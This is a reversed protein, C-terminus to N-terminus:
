NNIIPESDQALLNYEAGVQKWLDDFLEHPHTQYIQALLFVQMLNPLVVGREWKSLQSPDALGVMRAVKKRSYSKSHRFHKLKNPYRGKEM